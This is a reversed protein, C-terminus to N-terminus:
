HFCNANHDLFIDIRGLHSSSPIFTGYLAFAIQEEQHTPGDTLSYAKSAEAYASVYECINRAFSSLLYLQHFGVLGEFLGGVAVKM